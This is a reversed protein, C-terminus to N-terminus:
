YGIVVIWHGNEFSVTGVAGSEMELVAAYSCGGGQKKVANISRVEGFLYRLLDLTHIAVYFIYDADSKCFGSADVRFAAHFATVPGLGSSSASSRTPAMPSCCLVAINAPPSHRGVAM